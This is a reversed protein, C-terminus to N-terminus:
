GVYSLKEIERTEYRTLFNDYAEQVKDTISPRIKKLAEKFHKQTVKKKDLDGEGALVERIAGMAAERCLGEIDAGSYGGTNKVLYDFDTDKALPMDKTHVKFIELRAGTDPAQVLLVKDFRGPRVLAPDLLEPRNTAAIVTVNHLDELGDMETLLQNLVREGVRAGTEMGRVKLGGPDMSCYRSRFEM